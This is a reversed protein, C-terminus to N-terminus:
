RRAATLSLPRAAPRCWTPAAAGWWGRDRHPTVPIAAMGAAASCAAAAAVSSSFSLPHVEATAARGWRGTRAEGWRGPGASAKSPISPPLAATAASSMPPPTTGVPECALAFTGGETAVGGEGGSIRSNLVCGGGSGGGGAAVILRSELSEVQDGSRSLTRVDSAGGGGSQSSGGGNFGGACAIFTFDRQVCSLTPTNSFTPAGGVNVYLTQGPSVPLDGSVQAGRGARGGIDGVAGPAGTAVVHVSSVGNPLVFTDEASTSGFTCTTTGATTTCSGAAHAPSASYAILIAAMAAVLAVLTVLPRVLYSTRTTM